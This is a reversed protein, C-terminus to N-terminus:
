MIAFASNRRRFMRTRRKLVLKCIEVKRIKFFNRISDDNFLISEIVIEMEVNAPSGIDLKVSSGLAFPVVMRLMKNRVKMNKIPVTPLM